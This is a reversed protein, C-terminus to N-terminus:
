YDSFSASNSFGENVTEVPVLLAEIDEGFEKIYSGAVQGVEAISFSSAAKSWAPKVFLKFWDYSRWDDTALFEVEKLETAGGSVKTLRKGSDLGALCEGETVCAYLYLDWTEAKSMISVLFGTAGEEAQSTNAGRVEPRERLLFSAGVFLAGVIVILILASFGKV